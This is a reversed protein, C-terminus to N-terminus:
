AASKGLGQYGVAKAANYMIVLWGVGIRGETLNYRRITPAKGTGRLHGVEIGYRGRDAAMFWSGAQGAHVTGTAPDTVGVDLRPDSVLNFKNQAWNKTGYETSSTTDRREASGLLVDAVHEKTEPVILHRARIQCLRGNSTQTSMASKRAALTASGLGAGSSTLNGHNAHFLATTDQGMTPNGLLISYVLDPRIERAAEGMEQPTMDLAGFRDDIIDMEDVTFKEAYRHLKYSELVAEVEADKVSQNRDTKKLKSLKGQQIREVTQFNPLESEATWGMTTDPAGVFGQLLQAAFNTTFIANLTATSFSRQVIEDRDWSSFQKGELELAARCIDVMHMQQMSYAQDVARAAEDDRTPGGQQLSRSYSALWGAGNKPDDSISRSGLLHVTQPASFLESDVSIGSRLLMAAQLSRASVRNNAVHIAPAVPDSRDQRNSASNFEANVRTTDWGETIARQSIDANVGESMQRIYDVRAVEARIQEATQPQPQSNTQTDPLSRSSDTAAAGEGAPAAEVKFEVDDSRCLESFTTLLDGALNRRAWALAESEETVNSDLGRAHLWTLYKKMKPGSDSSRQSANTNADANSESNLPDESGIGRKNRGIKAQDDAGVPTISGEHARWNTVIRLTRAGSNTFQQGSVTETRGPPIDTYDNPGYRYGLSVDTVHKQRVLEWAEDIHKGANRAFHLTGRWRNDGLSIARISGYVSHSSWRSHDDLMVIQEPFQGGRALLVEDVVGRGNIRDYMPVPQETTLTAVVTRENEDIDGFTAARVSLDDAVVAESRASYDLRRAIRREKRLRKRQEKTPM